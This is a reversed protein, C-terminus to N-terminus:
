GSCADHQVKTAGHVIHGLHSGLVRSVRPAPLCIHTAAAAM